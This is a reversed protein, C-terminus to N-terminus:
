IWMQEYNQHRWLSDLIYFLSIRGLLPTVPCSCPKYELRSRRLREWDRRQPGGWLFGAPHRCSRRQGRPVGPQVRQEVASLGRAGGAACLEAAPPPALKYDPLDPSAQVVEQRPSCPHRTCADHHIRSYSMWSWDHLFDPPESFSCGLVHVSLPARLFLLTDPYWCRNLTHQKHSQIKQDLKCWCVSAKTNRM